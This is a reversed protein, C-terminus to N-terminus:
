GQKNQNPNITKLMLACYGVERHGLRIDWHELSCSKAEGVPFSMM